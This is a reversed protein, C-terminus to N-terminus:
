ARAGAGATVAPEIDSSGRVRPLSSLDRLLASGMGVFAVDRVGAALTQMADPLAVSITMLVMGAILCVGTWRPLVRARIVAAGFAVGAVVMLASHVDIWAGFADTLQDWDQTQNVLAVVVTGTFFVFTYAYMLASILGLRGIAHRQEVYLGLVFFPITAEAAYTLALQLTSFGDQGLEILDSALYVLSSVVAVVGIATSLQRHGPRGHNM